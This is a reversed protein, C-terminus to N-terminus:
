DEKSEVENYGKNYKFIVNLFIRRFVPKLLIIDRNM